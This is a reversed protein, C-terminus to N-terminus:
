RPRIEPTRMGLTVQPRGTGSRPQLTTAKVVRGCSSCRVPLCGGQKSALWGLAFGMGALLTLAFVGAWDSPKKKPQEDM